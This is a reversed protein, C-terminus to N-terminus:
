SGSLVDIGRDGAVRALRSDFTALRAATQEAALLPCCDPLRLGVTARLGALHDAERDFRPLEAIGAGAIRARAEARRGVREPGVLCEALTMTHIGFPGSEALIATADGHHADSTRLFGIVVSADLIIM